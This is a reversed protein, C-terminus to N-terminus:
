DLAVASLMAEVWPAVRAVEIKTRGAIANTVVQQGAQDLIIPVDNGCEPAGGIDAGFLM